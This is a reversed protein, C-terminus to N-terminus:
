MQIDNNRKIIEIGKKLDIMEFNGIIRKLKSIDLINTDINTMKITNNIEVYDITKNFLEEIQTFIEKISNGIGTGINIIDNRIGMTSLVYIIRSVDDVYVYDRINTIRGFLEVKENNLLKNITVDIIGQKKNKSTVGGYPNSLRLILYSFEENELGFIRLYDEIIIKELAYISKPDVSEDEKHPIDSDNYVTGGSSLFIYNRIQLNNLMQILNVKSISNDLFITNSNKSDNTANINGVADIVVADKFLEIDDKSIQEIMKSIFTVKTDLYNNYENEIGLVFVRCDSNNVIYNAFNTGLYGCGLIVFKNM